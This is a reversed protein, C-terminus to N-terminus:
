DWCGTSPLVQRPRQPPLRPLRPSAAPSPRSASCCPCSPGDCPLIRAEVEVIRLITATRHGLGDYEDYDFGTRPGKAVVMATLLGLANYVFSTTHKFPDTTATRRGDADYTTTTEHGLVGRVLAQRGAKPGL